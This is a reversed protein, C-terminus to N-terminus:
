QVMFPSLSHHEEEGDQAGHDEHEQEQVHRPQMEPLRKSYGHALLFHRIAAPRQRFRARCRQCTYWSAM